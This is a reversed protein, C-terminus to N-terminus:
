RQNGPLTFGKGCGWYGGFNKCGGVRCVKGVHFLLLMTFNLFFANLLAKSACELRFFPLSLSPFSPSHLVFCCLLLSAQRPWTPQIVFTLLGLFWAKCIERVWFSTLFWLAPLILDHHHWAWLHSAAWHRGSLCCLFFSLSSQKM